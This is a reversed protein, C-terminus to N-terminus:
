QQFEQETEAPTWADCVAFGLGAALGDMAFSGRQGVAALATPCVAEGVKKKPQNPPVRPHFLPAGSTEVVVDSTAATFALRTM